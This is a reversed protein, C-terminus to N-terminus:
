NDDDGYLRNLRAQIDAEIDDLEAEIEETLKNHTKEEKVEQLGTKEQNLWSPAVEQYSNRNSPKANKQMTLQDFHKRLKFPSLINTQWFNDKQSWDIIQKIDKKSRKDIESLKRFDDAWKQYNPEKASPNNQKIWNFLYQAMKLYPSDDDYRRPSQSKNKKEKDKDIDIEKEIEIEPTCKNYMQVGAKNELKKQESVSKRYQRIRDAESSSKGVFNQIDMMYIAGNDMIEILGIEQFIKTAKEIDGVSHRTVQALITPNYPIRDNFMLKGNNKLSRLYFKLLINSYIYGDPMSELVIMEDTDFFNDKLKLYYYKKNDAM